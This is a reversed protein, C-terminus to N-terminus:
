YIRTFAQFNFYDPSTLTVFTVHTLHCSILSNTHFFHRKAFFNKELSQLEVCSAWDVRDGIRWYRCFIVFKFIAPNCKSLNMVNQISWDYRYGM